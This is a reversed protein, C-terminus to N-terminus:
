VVKPLHAICAWTPWAGLNKIVVALMNPTPEGTRGFFIAVVFVLLSDAAPMMMPAYNMGVIFGLVCVSLWFLKRGAFLLCCGLIIDSIVM